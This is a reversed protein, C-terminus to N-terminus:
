PTVTTGNLTATTICNTYTILLVNSSGDSLTVTGDKYTNDCSAGYSLNSGSVTLVYDTAPVAGLNQRKLFGSISSLTGNSSPLNLNNLEPTYSADIYFGTLSRSSDIGGNLVIDGSSTYSGNSNKTTELRASVEATVSTQGANYTYLSTLGTYTMLFGGYSDTASKDTSSASGTIKNTNGQDDTSTCNYQLSLSEPIFDNDADTTAGATATHICTGIDPFGGGSGMYRSPLQAGHWDIMGPGMEGLRVLYNNSQLIIEKAGTTSLVGSAATPRTLASSSSAGGCASFLSSLACLTSIKLVFVKTPMM